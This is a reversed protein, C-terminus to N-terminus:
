EYIVDMVWIDGIGEQWAFYLYDGDTAFGFYGLEGLKGEFNTM